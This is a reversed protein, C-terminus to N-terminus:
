RLPYPVARGPHLGARQGRLDAQVPRNTRDGPPAAQGTGAPDPRDGEEGLRLEAEGCPVPPSKGEATRVTDGAAPRGARHSEASEGPHLPRQMGKAGIATPAANLTTTLTRRKPRRETSVYLSEVTLVASWVPSYNRPKLRKQQGGSTSVSKGCWNGSRQHSCRNM